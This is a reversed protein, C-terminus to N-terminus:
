TRLSTLSWRWERRPNVAPERTAKTLCVSVRLRGFAFWHIGGVKRYLCFKNSLKVM